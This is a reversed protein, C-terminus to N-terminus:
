KRYTTFVYATDKAAMHCGFCSIGGDGVLRDTRSDGAFAEFGWGGTAEFAQADYEMVGIFKRDSETLANGADHYNLLDFVFVAGDDYHGNALGQTAKENVYIHHIGAFPDELSHGPQIVMSKAHTWYRYGEPFSVVGGAGFAGVFPVVAVLVLVPLWLKSM